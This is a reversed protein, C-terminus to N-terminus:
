DQWRRFVVMEVIRRGTKSGSANRKAIENMSFGLGLKGSIYAACYNGSQCDRDIQREFVAYGGYWLARKLRSIYVSIHENDAITQAFDADYWVYYRREPRWQALTSTHLLYETDDERKTLNAESLLGEKKILMWHECIGVDYFKQVVQLSPKRVHLVAPPKWMHVTNLNREILRCVGALDAHRHRADGSNSQVRITTPM